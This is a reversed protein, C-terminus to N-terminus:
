KSPKKCFSCDLTGDQETTIVGKGCTKCVPKVDKGKELVTKIFKNVEEIHDKKHAM